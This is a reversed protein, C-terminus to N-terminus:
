KIAKVKQISESVQTSNASIKSLSQAINATASVQEKISASAEASRKGLEQMTTQMEKMLSLVQGIASQMQEVQENIKHTTGSINNSLNKVEGAVVGFSVGAEGARAAEITANLALINTQRTIQSILSVASTIQRTCESVSNVAGQTREIGDSARQSASLAQSSQQSIEATTASLEECAAAVSGVSDATSTALAAVTDMQQSSERMKRGASNIVESSKRYAGHMGRLVIPRHFRDSACSEMAAGAERVYADCIDLVRNIEVAMGGLPTSSDIHTIRAELDGKAARRCIETIRSVEETHIATKEPTSQTKAAKFFM